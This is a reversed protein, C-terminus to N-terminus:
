READDTQGHDDDTGDVHEAAAGTTLSVNTENVVTLVDAMFKHPKLDRHVEHAGLSLSLRGSGRGRFAVTVVLPVLPGPNM